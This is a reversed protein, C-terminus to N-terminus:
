FPQWFEAPVGRAEPLYLEPSETHWCRGPKGPDTNVVTRGRVLESSSFRIEELWPQLDVFADPIQQLVYILYECVEEGKSQVLDLMKRVEQDSNSTPPNGEESNWGAGLSRQAPPPEGLLCRVKDPLTPCAGVIEADEGSFYENVLLNDLLCQVNHLHTVLREREVRLLRICSRSDRPAARAEPLAQTDM